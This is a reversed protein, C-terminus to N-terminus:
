PHAQLKRAALATVSRPTTPVAATPGLTRFRETRITTSGSASTEPEM